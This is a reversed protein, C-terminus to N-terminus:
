WGADEGTDGARSWWNKKADYFHIHEKPVGIKRWIKYSETDKPVQENGEFVTVYLRNQILNSNKLLFNGFGHSNNKKLIIVWVGTASCKLFTDHRNDGVEELDQLRLSPQSDVLRTGM